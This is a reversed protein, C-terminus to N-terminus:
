ETIVEIDYVTTSKDGLKRVSLLVPKAKDLGVLVKSAKLFPKSNVSIVKDTVKGDKELVTANFWDQMEVEESQYKKGERRFWGFDQILIITRIDSEFKLYKGSFDIDDYTIPEGKNNEEDTM